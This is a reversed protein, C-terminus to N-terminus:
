RRPVPNLSPAPAAPEAVPVNSAHLHAIFWTGHAKTLVLTRRAIRESNRLHFTAIVADPALVQWSLDEPRLHHFPPSSAGSAHRIADFVQQFHDRIARKGDFRQPPEPPPFFVTADEAFCAIFADMDLNEFASLFSALRQQAGKPPERQTPEATSYAALIAALLAAILGARKRAIHTTAM